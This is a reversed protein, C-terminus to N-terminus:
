FSDFDAQSAKRKIEKDTRNQDIFEEIYDLCMGITMIELDANTLKCRYCLALFTETTVEEGEYQDTVKKKFKALM